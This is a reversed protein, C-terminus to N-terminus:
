PSLVTTTFPWLASHSSVLSSSPMSAKLRNTICFLWDWFVAKLSAVDFLPEKLFHNLHNVHVQSIAYM